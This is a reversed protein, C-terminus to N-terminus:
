YFLKQFIVHLLFAADNQNMTQMLGSPNHPWQGFAQL